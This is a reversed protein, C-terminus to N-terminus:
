LTRITTHKLRQCINVSGNISYDMSGGNSYARIGNRVQINALLRRNFFSNFTSGTNIIVVTLPLGGLHVQNFNFYYFQYMAGRNQRPAPCKPAYHGHWGCNHCQVHSRTQAYTGKVTGDSNKNDTIEQCLIPEGQFGQGQHFSFQSNTNNSNPGNNRRQVANSKYHTLLYTAEPLTKPYKDLKMAVGNSLDEWLRSYRTACANEIFAMALFRQEVDEQTFHPDQESEVKFLGEFVGFVGFRLFLPFLCTTRDEM